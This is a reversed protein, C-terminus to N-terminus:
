PDVMAVMDVLRWGEAQQEAIWGVSDYPAHRLRAVALLRPRGAVEPWTKLVYPLMPAPEPTSPQLPLLAVSASAAPIDQALRDVAKLQAASYPGAAHALAAVAGHDRQRWLKMRAALQARAAADVPGMEALVRPLPEGGLWRALLRDFFSRAAQPAEHQM